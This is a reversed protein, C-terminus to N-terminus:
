YKNKEANYVFNSYCHLHYKGEAAILDNIGALRTCLQPDYKSLQLIKDSISFTAISHLPNKSAIEQCFMCQKWDMSKHRSRLTSSSTCQKGNSLVSSEGPSRILRKIHHM